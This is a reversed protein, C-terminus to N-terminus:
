DLNLLRSNNLTFLYRENSEKISNILINDKILIKNDFSDLVQKIYTDNFSILEDAIDISFLKNINKIVVKEFSENLQTKLTKIIEKNMAIFDKKYLTIIENNQFKYNNIIKELSKIRYEKINEICKELDKRYNDLVKNLEQTDLVIDNKKAENILKSKLQDMSDLPPKSIISKLDEKVLANTNNEIIELLGNKYNDIHQKKIQKITIDEM